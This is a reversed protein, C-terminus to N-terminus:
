RETRGDTHRGTNARTNGLNPPNRGADFPIARIYGDYNNVPRLVGSQKSGDLPIRRLTYAKTTTRKRLQTVRLGGAARM